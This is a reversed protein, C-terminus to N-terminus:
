PEAAEAIELRRTHVAAKRDTVFPAYWNQSILCHVPCVEVCLNCNCCKLRNIEWERSDKTVAIAYTPCRRACIGCFICRGIDNEINGRTIPKFARKKQPYMLTVPGRLLNKSVIRAMTFLKM